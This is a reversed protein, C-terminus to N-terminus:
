PAFLSLILKLSILLRMMIGTSILPTSSENRNSVPTLLGMIKLKRFIV